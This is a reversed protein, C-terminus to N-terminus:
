NGYAICVWDDDKWAWDVCPDAMSQANGGSGAAASPSHSAAGDIRRQVEEIADGENMILVEVTRPTGVGTPRTMLVM